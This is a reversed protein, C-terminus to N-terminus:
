KQDWVLELHIYFYAINNLCVNFNRSFGGAYDVNTSTNVHDSPLNALFGDEMKVEVHRNQNNAEDLVIVRHTLVTPSAAAM